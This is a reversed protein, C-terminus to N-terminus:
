GNWARSRSRAPKPATQASESAAGGPGWKLSRAAPVATAVAGNPAIKPHVTWASFRPRPRAPVELELELGGSRSGTPLPGLDMSM